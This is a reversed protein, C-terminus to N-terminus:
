KSTSCMAIQVCKGHVIHIYKTCIAENLPTKYINCSKNNNRINHVIHDYVLNIFIIGTKLELHLKDTDSDFPRNLEVELQFTQGRRIILEDGHFM